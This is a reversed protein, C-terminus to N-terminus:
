EESERFVEDISVIGSLAKLIGDGRLTIMGQRAAEKVFEAEHAGKAIAEAVGSTMQFVEAIAIRGVVGKGRCVACGAGRFVAYPAAPHLAEPLKSIEKEILAKLAPPPTEKRKCSDCLRAVLRQAMMLNISPQLLFPKVGLDILRPIVGLSNNTHLTSLVIHGTLAAHVSLEATESDRIEGIMIIDPDQRLIQRLGSAFDYGIEPKVQSQNIGDISYEVPDELSVINVTDRNLLQLLAYLTTTKGSGTPGTLLIAGYPKVIGAEIIEKNRGVIGLDPLQKMGVKPDLVRIAAKEGFPTPFTSVRFDIDREFIAMRFRGDQPIRNEDIKLNALIKVRSLLQAYVELGVSGVEELVGDIRFRVRMRTRTPEFHVDSAGREVANTLFQGVLKIAPAEESVVIRDGSTHVARNEASEGARPRAPAYETKAVTIAPTGFRRLVAEVAARTVLYAGLSVKERKAIFRLAEQARPDAPDAMGVTFLDKSRALPIVGYTRITERPILKLVEEPIAAADAKKFPVNLIVAKARASDEERVLNKNLLFAELPTGSAKAEALLKLAQTRPLVGQEVLEAALKEDM